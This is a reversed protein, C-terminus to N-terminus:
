SVFMLKAYMQVDCENAQVFNDMNLEHVYYHGQNITQEHLFYIITFLIHMRFCENKTPSKKISNLVQMFDFFNNLSM